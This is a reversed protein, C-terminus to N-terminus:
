RLEGFWDGAEQIGFACSTWIPVEGRVRCVPHLELSGYEQAQRANRSCLQHAYCGAAHGNWFGHTLNIDENKQRIALAPDQLVQVMRSLLKIMVDRQGGTIGCNLIKLEQNGSVCRGVSRFISKCTLPRPLTQGDGEHHVVPQVERGDESLSSEDMPAKQAQGSLQASRHRGSRSDREGTKSVM